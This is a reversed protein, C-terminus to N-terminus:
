VCESVKSPMYTRAFLTAEPYRGCTDLIGICQEVEGYGSKSTKLVVVRDRYKSPLFITAMGDENAQARSLVAFTDDDMIRCM